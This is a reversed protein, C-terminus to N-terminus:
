KRGPRLTSDAKWEPPRDADAVRAVLNYFFGNFKAAATWDIPQDLDDKPKHYGTQYWLRYRRESDTGARYGFVFGTAPIGAALFPWHDARRLLNREPEPDHQVTIGDAGATVRVADGLTTDDLAHVTMLELPFIPRLQDLNINAVLADRPVTPHAVFETAGLLGKEEGTFAAFIVSRRYGKGQRREALRQLLAVYAADDLTGNYLGDGKVPEGRGYGDLHASLVVYQNRLMPDTGPLMGLVNASTILRRRLGVKAAFPLPLDFNALPAGASGTRILAGVNHGSGALLRPLAAPNLTAAFLRDAAPAPAGVPAVTRAYAVPWQMPEITFGPDAITVIGIAGAAEVATYREAASTLGARRWGYCLVVKGRVDGLAEGGCYGRFALPANLARPMNPSPRLTIDHLLRLPAAGIQIRTARADVTLNVLKLQQYWGGKEGAPRLGAAAFRAALLRAARDYGPSGTDRGEMADGSLAETAQWWARTDADGIESSRPASAAITALAAGLVLWKSIM